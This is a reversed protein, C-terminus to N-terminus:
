GIQGSKLLKRNRKIAEKSTGDKLLVDRNDYLYNLEKKVNTQYRSPKFNKSPRNSIEPAKLNKSANYSNNIAKRDRISKEIGAAGAGIAAAGIALGTGLAVARRIKYKKDLKANRQIANTLLKTTGTKNNINNAVKSVGSKNLVRAIKPGPANMYPDGYRRVRKAYRDKSVKYKSAFQDNSLNTWDGKVRRTTSSDSKTPNMYSYKRIGEATLSGDPNQYKRVGWKMGKVGHHYLESHELYGYYSM